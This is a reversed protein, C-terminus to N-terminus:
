SQWTEDGFRQRVSLPRAAPGLDTTMSSCGVRAGVCTEWDDGSPRRLKFQNPMYHFQGRFVSEHLTM